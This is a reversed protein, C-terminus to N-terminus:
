LTQLLIHEPNQKTVNELLIVAYV